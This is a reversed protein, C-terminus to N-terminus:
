FLCFVFFFFFFLFLFSVLDVSNDCPSINQFFLCPHPSHSKLDPTLSPERLLHYKLFSWFSTFLTSSSPGLCFSCCTCLGQPPLMGPDSLFGAPLPFLSPSLPLLHPCLTAKHDHPPPPSQSKSQTLHSGLLTRSCLLANLPTRQNSYPSATQLPTLFLLQFTLLMPGPPLHPAPGPHPQSPSSLHNSEPYIRFTSDEPNASAPPPFPSLPSLSVSPSPPLPLSLSTPLSLFFLLSNALSFLWSLCQSWTNQGSSLM